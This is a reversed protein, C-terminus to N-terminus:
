KNSSKTIRIEIENIMASNYLEEDTINDIIIKDYFQDFIKKLNKRPFVLKGQSITGDNFYIFYKVLYKTM